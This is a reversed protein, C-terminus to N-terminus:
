IIVLHYVSVTKLAHACYKVTCADILLLLYHTYNLCRIRSLLIQCASFHVCLSPLPLTQMRWNLHTILDFVSM